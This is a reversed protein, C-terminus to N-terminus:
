SSRRFDEKRFEEELADTREAELVAVTVAVAIEELREDFVTLAVPWFLSIIPKNLVALRGESNVFDFRTRWYNSRISMGTKEGIQVRYWERVDRESTITAVVGNDRLVEFKPRLQLPLRRIALVKEGAANLLDSTFGLLKESFLYSVEGKENLFRLEARWLIRRIVYRM